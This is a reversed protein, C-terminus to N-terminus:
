RSEERTMNPGQAAVGSYPYPGAAEAAVSGGSGHRTRPVTVAYPLPGIETLPEDSEEVRPEPLWDLDDFGRDIYGGKSFSEGEYGLVQRVDPDDYFTLVTTRRIFAFFELDAIRRLVPLAREQDLDVFRGQAQADLTTLGQTLSMRFWTSNAAERVIKDTMREYASDPVSQHPFAVEIIKKLTLRTQGTLDVENLTPYIPPSSM